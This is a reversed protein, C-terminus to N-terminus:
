RTPGRSLPSTPPSSEDAALHKVTHRGTATVHAGAAILRAAVAAGTGRTGGSVLARKGALNETHLSSATTM